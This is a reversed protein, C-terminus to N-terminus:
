EGRGEYILSRVATWEGPCAFGLGKTTITKLRFRRSPNGGQLVNRL